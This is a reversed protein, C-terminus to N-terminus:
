ALGRRGHGCRTMRVDREWESEAWALLEEYDVGNGWKACRDGELRVRGDDLDCLGCWHTCNFCHANIPLLEHRQNYPADWDPETMWEGRTGQGYGNIDINGSM